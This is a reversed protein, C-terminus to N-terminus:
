AAKQVRGIHVAEDEHLAPQLTFDFRARKFASRIGLSEYGAASAVEDFSVILKDRTAYAFDDHLYPDGEINIQTTLLRRGPASVLFHVHAPRKGHRGLKDFLQSTPSDPPIAYGPPVVSRLRYRGQSDTSVKRRLHFPKQSPDFGSYRGNENAHWADVTAGALPVGAADLVVGEVVFLAGPDGDDDLRAEYHSQPAGPVYLPGEITRPTGEPRGARRDAEDERIDLLYDFGLGATILGVQGSAGLAQLWTVAAWFETPTIDFHEITAYLDATIRNVIERVRDDGKFHRDTLVKNLLAQATLDAM